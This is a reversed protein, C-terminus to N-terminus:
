ALLSSLSIAADEAGSSSFSDQLCGKNFDGQVRNSGPLSCRTEGPSKWTPGPKAMHPVSSETKALQSEPNALDNLLHASNVQARDRFSCQLSNEKAVKLDCLHPLTAESPDLGPDM